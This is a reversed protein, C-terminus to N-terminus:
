LALRFCHGARRSVPTTYTEALRMGLRRTVAVSRANRADVM